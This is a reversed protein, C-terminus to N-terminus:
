IVHRLKGGMKTTVKVSVIFLRHLQYFRLKEWREANSLADRIIKWFGNIKPKQVSFATSPIHFNLQPILKWVIMYSIEKMLTNCNILHMSELSPERFSYPVDLFELMNMFKMIIQLGFHNEQIIIFPLFHSNANGHRATQKSFSTDCQISKWSIQYKLIKLFDTTFIWAEEFDSLFLPQRVNLGTYM